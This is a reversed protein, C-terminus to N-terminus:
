LPQYERHLHEFCKASLASCDVAIYSLGADRATCGLLTTGAFLELVHTRKLVSQSDREVHTQMASM